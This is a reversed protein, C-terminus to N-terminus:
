CVRNFQLPNQTFLHIEDEFTARERDQCGADYREDLVPYDDQPFPLPIQTIEFFVHFLFWSAQPGVHSKKSPLHRLFAIQRCRVSSTRIHGNRPALCSNVAFSLFAKAAAVFSGCTCAFKLFIFATISGITPSFHLSSSCM